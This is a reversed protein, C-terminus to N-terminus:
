KILFSVFLIIKTVAGTAFEFTFTTYESKWIEKSLLRFTVPFDEPAVANISFATDFTIVSWNFKPKGKWSKTSLFDTRPVNWFPSLTVVFIIPKSSEKIILKM